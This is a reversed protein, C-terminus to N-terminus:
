PMKFCNKGFKSLMIYTRVMNYNYIKRITAITPTGAEFLCSLNGWREVGGGKKAEYSKLEVMEVAGCGGLERKKKYIIIGILLLFAV